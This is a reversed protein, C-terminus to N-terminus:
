RPELLVRRHTPTLLFFALLLLPLSVETLLKKTLLKKNFINLVIFYFLPQDFM